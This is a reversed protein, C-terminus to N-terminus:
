GRDAEKRARIAAALWDAAAGAECPAGPFNEHKLNAWDRWGSMDDCVQACAENEALTAEDCKDTLKTIVQRVESETFDLPDGSDCGGGDVEYEDALFEFRAQWRSQEALTAREAEAALAHALKDLTDAVVSALAREIVIPTHTVVVDTSVFGRLRAAYKDANRIIQDRENTPQSM